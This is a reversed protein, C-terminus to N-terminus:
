RVTDNYDKVLSELYIKCSSMTSATVKDSNKLNRMSIKFYNQLMKNTKMFKSLRRQLDEELTLSELQTNAKSMVSIYEEYLKLIDEKSIENNTAEFRELNAYLENSIKMQERMLLVMDKFPSDDLTLIEATEGLEIAVTTLETLTVMMNQYNNKITESYERGLAGKDDKYNESEIYNHLKKYMAELNEKNTLYISMKQEFFSQTKADFVNSPINTLDVEQNNIRLNYLTFMSNNIFFMYDASRPKEAFKIMKIVNKEHTKAWQNILNSEAIIKNTYIITQHAQVTKDKTEKPSSPENDGCGILSFLIFATLFFKLSSRFIKIIYTCINNFSFKLIMKDIGYDLNSLYLLTM